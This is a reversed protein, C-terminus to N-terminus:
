VNQLRDWDHLLPCNIFYESQILFQDHFQNEDM